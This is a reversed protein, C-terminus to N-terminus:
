AFPRTKVYRGVLRMFDPDTRTIRMAGGTDGGFAQFGFPAQRPRITQQVALLKAYQRVGAPVSPWGFTGTIKISDRYVPWTRGSGFKIRVRDYPWSTAAANVPELTFDTGAVWTTEYTGDNGTDVAFTTMTTLDDIDLVDDGWCPTYYRITTDQYFKRGCADDIARSAAEVADQIDEDAYNQSGLTLTSKVESLSVYLTSATSTNQVPDTPLSVDGSADVFVIRYWYNAATGLETTFSRLQPDSPDSDGSFSKTELTSYSGNASSAEQIQAQTWPLADYRAPPRFDELTVVYAM